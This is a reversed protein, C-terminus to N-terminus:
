VHNGQHEHQKVPLLTLLINLGACFSCKCSVESYLSLTLLFSVTKAHMELISVNNVRYDIKM